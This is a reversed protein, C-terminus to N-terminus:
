VTIGTIVPIPVHHAAQSKHVSSLQTNLPKKQAPKDRIRQNRADLNIHFPLCMGSCGRLWPRLPLQSSEPFCSRLEYQKSGRNVLRPMEPLRPDACEAYGYDGLCRSYVDQSRKKDVLFGLRYM